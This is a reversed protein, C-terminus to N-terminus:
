LAASAISLDELALNFGDILDLFLILKNMFAANTIGLRPIRRELKSERKEKLVGSAIRLIPFGGPLQKLANLIDVEHPFLFASVELVEEILQFADDSGGEFPDAQ